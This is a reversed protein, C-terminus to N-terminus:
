IPMDETLQSCQYPLFRRRRSSNDSATREMETCLLVSCTRSYPKRCNEQQNRNSKRNYSNRKIRQYPNRNNQNRKNKHIREQSQHQYSQSVSVHINGILPIPHNAQEESKGQQKEDYRCLLNPLHHVQIGCADDLFLLM